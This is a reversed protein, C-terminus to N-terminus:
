YGGGSSPKESTEINKCFTNFVADGLTPNTKSFFWMASVFFLTVLIGAFFWIIKSSGRNLIIGEIAETNLVDSSTTNGNDPSNLPSVISQTYEKNTSM